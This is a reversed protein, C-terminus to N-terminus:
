AEGGFKDNSSSVRTHALAICYYHFNGLYRFRSQCVVGMCWSQVASQILHKAIDNLLPNLTHVVPAMIICVMHQFDLNGVFLVQMETTGFIKVSQGGTAMWACKLEVMRPLSIHHATFVFKGMKVYIQMM